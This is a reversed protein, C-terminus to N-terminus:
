ILIKYFRKPYIAYSQDIKSKSISLESYSESYWMDLKPSFNYYM